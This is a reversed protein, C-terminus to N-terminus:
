RNTATNYDHSTSSAPRDKGAGDGAVPITLCTRKLDNFMSDFYDRGQGLYSPILPAPAGCGFHPRTGSGSGSLTLSKSRVPASRVLALVPISFLGLVCTLSGLLTLSM